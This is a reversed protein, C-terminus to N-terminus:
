DVREGKGRHTGRADVHGTFKHNAKTDVLHAPHRFFHAVFKAVFDVEEHLQVVRINYASISFNKNKAEVLAESNV